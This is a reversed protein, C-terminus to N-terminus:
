VTWQTDSSMYWWCQLEPNRLDRYVCPENLQLARLVTLSVIDLLMPFARVATATTALRAM